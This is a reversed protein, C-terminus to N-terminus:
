LGGGPLVPHAVQHTHGREDRWSTLRGANDLIATYEAFVAGNGFLARLVPGSNLFSADAYRTARAGEPAPADEAFPHTAFWAFTGFISAQSGLRRLEARDARKLNLM